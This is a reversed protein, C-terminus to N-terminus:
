FYKPWKNGEEYTIHYKKPHEEYTRKISDISEELFDVTESMLSNLFSLNSTPMLIFNMHWICLLYPIASPLKIKM